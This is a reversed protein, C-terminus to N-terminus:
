VGIDLGSLRRERIRASTSLLLRSDLKPLELTSHGSEAQREEGRLGPEFTERWSASRRCGLFEEISSVGREASITLRAMRSKFIGKQPGRKLGLGAPLARVEKPFECAWVGSAEISVVIVQRVTMVLRQTSAMQERQSRISQGAKSGPSATGAPHIQARQRATRAPFFAISGFAV